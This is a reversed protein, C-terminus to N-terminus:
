GVVEFGDLELVAVLAERFRQHDDAVMVTPRSVPRDRPHRARDGDREGDHRGGTWSAGSSALLRGMPRVFRRGTLAM